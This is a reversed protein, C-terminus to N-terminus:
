DHKQHKNSRSIAVPFYVVISVLSIIIAATVMFEGRRAIDPRVIQSFARVLFALLACQLGLLIMGIVGRITVTEVSKANIASFVLVLLGTIGLGFELLISIVFDMITNDGLSFLQAM